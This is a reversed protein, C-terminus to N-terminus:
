RLKKKLYRVVKDPDTFLQYFSICFSKDNKKVIFKKNTDAEAVDAKITNRDLLQKAIEIKATIDLNDALISAIFKSNSIPAVDDEKQDIKYKTEIDKIARINM